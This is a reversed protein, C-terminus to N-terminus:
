MMENLKNRLNQEIKQRIHTWAEQPIYLVERAPMNIKRYTRVEFKQKIKKNKGKASVTKNFPIVWPDPYEDHIARHTRRKQFYNFNNAGRRHLEIKLNAGPRPQYILQMGLGQGRQYLMTPNILSNYMQSTDRLKRGQTPKGLRRKEAISSITYSKWQTPRGEAIFNKKIEDVIISKVRGQLHTDPIGPPMQRFQRLKIQLRIM